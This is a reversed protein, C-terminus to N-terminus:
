RLYASAIFGFLSGIRESLEALKEPTLEEPAATAVEAHLRVVARELPTQPAEPRAGPLAAVHERLQALEYLVSRPNLPDLALLDLASERTAGMSFRMRHTISSDGVEILLDLAGEPAEPAGFWALAETMSLTRELARGTRLFRWGQNRHMNEHVLGSFGTLKRLLISLAHAADAGPEVKAALRRASKQLDSLAMWGDSSFRERVQGASILASSLASILGQPIPRDTEAGREKLLEAAYALLPAEPDDTEALRVHRARLLRILDEAREVYRGLWFFNDAARASLMPTERRLGQAPAYLTQIDPAGRAVVWLDAVAGGQRLALAGPDPSGGVRLFGGQMARWGEPTRILFIRLSIPRPQLVGEVFAPATSLTVAEQGVLGSGNADIWDALSLGKARKAFEGRFEGGVAATDVLDFPLSTSLARSVAMREAHTKVYDREAAHGCWWTAINPMRLTEGRLARCIRPLFALMARTELVGSGLANVMTVGEARLAGVMGAAGLRSAPNLELPDVWDSDMRRWLVSVPELGSITRVMVKGHRVVLDEGEVLLLGLYRAIYAHEFHNENMGGPTLIAIRGNEPGRLTQLSERVARYFGALRHVRAQNYVDSFARTTAIRTELAFGSGSPAQTRDGLVWWAGDPGRGVDFAVYHLYRGSRPKVGVMPRLWEPNEAVLQPPLWGEAVLRNPGYLDAMVEELLDARQMLATTIERWEAEDMLMPMHSLPWDREVAEAGYQRQYMGTDRLYQDARAKREELDEPTMDAIRRMFPRWLPRIEGRRDLLEDPVGPLPKYERLLADLRDLASGGMAGGETVPESM